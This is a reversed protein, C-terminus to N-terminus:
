TVPGDVLATLAGNGRRRFQSPSMGFCQRFTANFTSLDGFGSEFAMAAVAASSALLRGAARRLRLGLLFQYPTMGISRRFVRLFHFKSMAAIAALTDLDLADTATFSWTACRGASGGSTSRRFGPQNPLGHRLPQARREHCVAFADGRPRAPRAMANRRSCRPRRFCTAARRCCRPQFASALPARRRRPSRPSITPSSNRRSAYMARVTSMDAAIVLGTIASCCRAPICCRAGASRRMPSPEPLSQPSRFRM